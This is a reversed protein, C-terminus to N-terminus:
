QSRGLAVSARPSHARRSVGDSVSQDDSADCDSASREADDAEMAAWWEKRARAVEGCYRKCRQIVAGLITDDRPTSWEGARKIHGALIFRLVWEADEEARRENHSHARLTDLLHVGGTRVLRGGVEKVGATMDAIDADLQKRLRDYAGCQLLVHEEDEVARCWPLGDRQNERDCWRCFRQERTVGQQRGRVVAIDAVGCRLRTMAVMCRRDLLSTRLPREADAVTLYPERVLQLKMRRYLKLSSKSAMEERWRSEEATCLQERVMPLFGKAGGHDGTISKDVASLRAGSWHPVLLQMDALATNVYGTFLQHVRLRGGVTSSGNWGGDGLRASLYAREAKYTQVTYRSASEGTATELKNWYRLTLLQRRASMTQWGLEGRVAAAATRRHVRLITCGMTHQLSEAQRWSGARASIAPAAYEVVSRVLVKWWRDATDVTCLGGSVGAAAIVHMSEWAKEVMHEMSEQWGYDSRFQVGLYDHTDVAQLVQGRYVCVESSCTRASSSSLSASTVMVKTKTINLAMRWRRCWGDLTSVKRQLSVMSGGVLVLDDAYGLQELSWAAHGSASDALRVVIGGGDRDVERLVDDIYINFLLPSLVCGQRVGKRMPVWPTVYRGDVVFRSEVDTYLQQLVRLVKGRVGVRRLKCWLGDRWVNDYAKELDVFCLYSSAGDRMARLQTATHLTFIQDTTSRTARFGGQSEHLVGHRECWDTLRSNLISTFVKSVHTLLTIPRYSSPSTSDLQPSKLLPVIEGRNWQRPTYEHHLLLNFVLTLTVVVAEGGRKLLEAPVNDVGTAKRDGLSQMAQRVEEETIDSEIDMLQSGGSENRADDRAGRELEAEVQREYQDDYESEERAANGMSALHETWVQMVDSLATSYEGEATRVKIPMRQRIACRQGALQRLKRWHQACTASSNHLAEVAEVERLQRDRQLQRRRQSLQASCSVYQQQLTTLAADQAVSPKSAVIAKWLQRRKDMLQTIGTAESRHSGLRLPSTTANNDMANTVRSQLRLGLCRRATRWLLRHLEDAVREICRERARLWADSGRRETALDAEAKRVRQQVHLLALACEQEYRHQWESNTESQGRQENRLKEWVVQRGRDYRSPSVANRARGAAGGHPRFSITIPIHDSISHAPLTSTQDAISLRIDERVQMRGWRGQEPPSVAIYDLVKRCEGGSGEDSRRRGTAWRRLTFEGGSVSCLAAKEALTHVKM